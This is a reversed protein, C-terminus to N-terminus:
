EVQERVWQEYGENAEVEMKMICPVEYPHLNEVEVVIKNWLDPITKVIAVYENDKEIKGEWWYASSMPFINYCAVLKKELLQHSIKKASDESGFTIYIAIFSM